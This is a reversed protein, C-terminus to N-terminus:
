RKILSFDDFWVNGSVSCGAAPCGEVALRIEIGEAAAPITFMARGESWDVAAALPISAIPKADNTPTIQCVIKADTKLESRYFLVLEYNATPEVGVKQIVQRFGKGGTGFNMLLSYSGSKKQADNLGVRPFGGDAIMWSFPNPDNPVIASEFGGNTITGTAPANETFLGIANGTEIASRYLRAEMFKSYLSQGTEKLNKKETEPISQWLNLADANRKENALLVTLAANTRPSDGLSEKIKAIDGGFIQWASAAAPSALGADAAVADRVFAFGDSYNRRRVLLNGLAWKVRSYNPALELAKRLAAESSITDGAQERARGLALWNLYNNPALAVSREFEELSRAQDSPLFTKELLHAHELHAQPDAPALTVGLDAVEVTSANIAAAHGFSWKAVPLVLLAAIICTAIAAFRRPRNTISLTKIQM